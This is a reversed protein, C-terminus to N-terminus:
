NDGDRSEDVSVVTRSLLGVTAGYRESGVSAILADRRSVCHRTAGRGLCYGYPTEYHRPFVCEPVFSDDGGDTIVAITVRAYSSDVVAARTTGALCQRLSLAALAAGSRPPFLRTPLSRTTIIYM